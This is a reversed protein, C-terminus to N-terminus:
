RCAQVNYLRRYDGFRDEQQMILEACSTEFAQRMHIDIGKWWARDMYVYDYGAEAVAVPDPSKILQDWDPYPEYLSMHARSSRGFLTVARFPISDLVQADQPLRNWYLDSAIDDLDKNVFYALQPAPITSIQTAFLALGGFISMLFGAAMLVRSWKGKIKYLYWLVPLSCIWDTISLWGTSPTWTFIPRRTAQPL